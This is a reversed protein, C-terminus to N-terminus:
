NMSDAIANSNDQERLFADPHRHGLATESLDGCKDFYILPHGNVTQALIPFDKRIAEWPRQDISEM